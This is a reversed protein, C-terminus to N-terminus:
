LSPPCCTCLFSWENDQLLLVLLLLYIAQQHTWLPWILCQKGHGPITLGDRQPAPAALGKCLKSFHNPLKMSLFWDSPVMSLPMMREQKHPLRNWANFGEWSRSNFDPSKWSAQHLVKTARAQPDLKPHQSSSLKGNWFDKELVFSWSCQMLESALLHSFTIIYILFIEKVELHTKFPPIGPDPNGFAHSPLM